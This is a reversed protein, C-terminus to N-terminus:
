DEQLLHTNITSTEACAETLIRRERDTLDRVKITELPRMGHGRSRLQGLFKRGRKDGWRPFSKLLEGVSLDGTVAPDFLQPLSIDGRTIKRKTEAMGFRVENARKLAVMHQSQPDAGTANM